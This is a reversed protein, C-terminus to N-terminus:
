SQILGTQGVREFTCIGLQALEDIAISTSPGGIGTSTILLIKGQIETLYSCFERKWALRKNDTGYAKSITEAIVQSRFPDGPLLAIKAEQIKEEDLDLHYVHSM